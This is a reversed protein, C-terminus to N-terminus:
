RPRPIGNIYAFQKAGKKGEDLAKKFISKGVIPESASIINILFLCM